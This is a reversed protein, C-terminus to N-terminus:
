KSCIRARKPIKYFELAQNITKAAVGFHKAVKELSKGSNYVYELSIKDISKFSRRKEIGARSFRQQVAQKIIGYRDAIQQMTLGDDYLQEMERTLIRSEETQLMVTFIKKSKRINVKSNRM